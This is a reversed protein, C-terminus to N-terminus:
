VFNLIPSEHIDRALNVAVESQPDVGTRHYGCDVDLWVHFRYRASKIRVLAEPSDIIVRLTVSTALERAQRVRAFSIPSAWTIDTFGHEAFVEAEHLTSVTIGTAGLSRQLRAVDVCKHTKIHPRLAVGLARARSAMGELNAELKDLDLLLAPTPLDGVETISGSM